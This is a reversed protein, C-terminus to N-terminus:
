PDHWEGSKIDQVLFSFFVERSILGWIVWTGQGIVSSDCPSKNKRDAKGENKSHLGTEAVVQSALNTEPGWNGRPQRKRGKGQIRRRSNLLLSLCSHLLKAELGLKGICGHVFWKPVKTGGNGIQLCFGVDTGVKNDQWFFISYSTIYVSKTCHSMCNPSRPVSNSVDPCNQVVQSPYDGELLGVHALCPYLLMLTAM